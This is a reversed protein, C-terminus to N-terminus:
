YSDLRLQRMLAEVQIAQAEMKAKVQVMAAGVKEELSQQFTKEQIQVALRAWHEAAAQQDTALVGSKWPLGDLAEM